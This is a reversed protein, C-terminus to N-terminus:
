KNKVLEIRNWANLSSLLLDSVLYLNMSRKRSFYRLFTKGRLSSIVAAAVKTQLLLLLRKAKAL